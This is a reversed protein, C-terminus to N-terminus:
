LRLESRPDKGYASEVKRIADRVEDGGDVPVQIMLRLYLDGRTGGKLAPVGHARIRLRKGSQSGPPVKVLVSGDPTTVAISAGM